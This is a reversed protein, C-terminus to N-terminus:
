AGPVGRQDRQRRQDRHVREGVVVREGDGRGGRAQEREGAAARPERADQEADAPRQLEIRQEQQERDDQDRHPAPRDPGGHPGDRAGGRRPGGDVQGHHQQPGGPPPLEEPEVLVPSYLM